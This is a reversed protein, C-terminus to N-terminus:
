AGRRSLREHAEALQQQGRRVEALEDPVAELLRMLERNTPADTKALLWSRRQWGAMRRARAASSAGADSQSSAGSPSPASHSSTATVPPQM